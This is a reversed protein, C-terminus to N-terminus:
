DQDSDWYLSLGFPVTELFVTIYRPLKIYGLDSKWDKESMSWEKYLYFKYSHFM